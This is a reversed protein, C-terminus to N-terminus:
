KRDGIKWGKKSKIKKMRGADYELDFEDPRQRKKREREQEDIQSRFIDVSLDIDNWSAM